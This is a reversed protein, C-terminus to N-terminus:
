QRVMLKRFRIGGPLYFLLYLHANKAKVNMSRGTNSARYSFGVEVNVFSGEEAEMGGAIAKDEGSENSDIGEVSSPQSSANEEADHSHKKTYMDGENPVKRDKEQIQGGVSVDKKANGTPLWKIGLIRIAEVIIELTLMGSKRGISM